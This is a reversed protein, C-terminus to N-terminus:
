QIIINKNFMEKRTVTEESNILQVNYLGAPLESIDIESNNNLHNKSLVLQGLRNFLKLCVLDTFFRNLTIILYNTAPNPHIDIDLLQNNVLDLDEDDCIGDFDEDNLCNGFCDYGIDPYLCGGDDLNAESNYNCATVDLCGYIDECGDLNQLGTYAIIAAKVEDHFKMWVGGGEEFSWTHCYSMITGIQPEPNNIYTDCEGLVM